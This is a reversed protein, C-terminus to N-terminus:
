VADDPRAAAGGTGLTKGHVPASVALAAEFREGARQSRRKRRANIEKKRESLSM